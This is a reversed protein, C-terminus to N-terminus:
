QAMGQVDRRCSMLWRLGGSSPLRNVNHAAHGSVVHLELRSPDDLGPLTQLSSAEKGIGPPQGSGIFLNVSHDDPPVVDVGVYSSLERIAEDRADLLDNPM